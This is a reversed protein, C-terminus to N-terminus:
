GGAAGRLEMGLEVVNDQQSRAVQSMSSAARKQIPFGSVSARFFEVIDAQRAPKGESGHHVAQPVSNFSEAASIVKRCCGLESM